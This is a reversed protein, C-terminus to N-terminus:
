PSLAGEDVVCEAMELTSKNNKGKDTGTRLQNNTAYPFM